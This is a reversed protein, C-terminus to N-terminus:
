VGSVAEELDTIDTLERKRVQRDCEERLLELPNCDPRLSPWDMAPMRANKKAAKPQLLNNVKKSSHKPDNDQM